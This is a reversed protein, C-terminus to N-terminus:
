VVPAIAAVVIEDLRYLDFERPYLGVLKEFDASFLELSPEYTSAAQRAQTNIDDVVLHVQQMRAIVAFPLIDNTM